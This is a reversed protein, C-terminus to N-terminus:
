KLLKERKVKEFVALSRAHEEAFDADSLGSRRWCSEAKEMEDKMFHIWGQKNLAQGHEPSQALVNDVIAQAEDIKNFCLLYHALNTHHVLRLPCLEIGRRAWQVAEEWRELRYATIALWFYISGNSIDLKEAHLCCKLAEDYREAHWHIRGLSLWSGAFRPHVNVCLKALELARDWDKRTIHYDIRIEAFHPNGEAAQELQQLQEKWEDFRKLEKLCLMLHFRYDLRNSDLNIARQLLPLAAATDQLGTQVIAQFVLFDPDDSELQPLRHLEGKVVQFQDLNFLAALRSVLAMPQDASHKLAEDATALAAEPQRGELLHLSKMALGIAGAEQSSLETKLATSSEIYRWTDRFLFVKLLRAPYLDPNELAENLRDLAAHLRKAVPDVPPVPLACRDVDETQIYYRTLKVVSLVALVILGLASGWQLWWTINQEM